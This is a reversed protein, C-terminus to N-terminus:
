RPVTLAACLRKDQADRGWVLGGSAPRYMHALRRPIEAIAADIQPRLHEVEDKYALVERNLLGECDGRSGSGVGV